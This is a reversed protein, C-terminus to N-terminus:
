HSRQGPRVVGHSRFVIELSRHWFQLERCWTQGLAPKTVSHGALENQIAEMVAVITDVPRDTFMNASPAKRNLAAMTTFPVLMPMKLGATAVQVGELAVYRQISGVPRTISSWGGKFEPYDKDDAVVHGAQQVTPHFFVQARTFDATNEPVAAGMWFVSGSKRIKLSFSTYGQM